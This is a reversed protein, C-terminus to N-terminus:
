NTLNKAHEWAAAATDVGLSQVAYATLSLKPAGDSALLASYQEQTCDPNATVDINVDYATGGYADGESVEVYYVDPVDNGVADKLQTWNAGDVAYSLYDDFREPQKDVKIFLWCSESGSLVSVKADVDYTQGPVMVANNLPYEQTLEIQIKGVTFTNRVPDTKDTLYAVTAAVSGVVLTVACLAIALVKCLKNM